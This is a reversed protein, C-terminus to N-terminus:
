MSLTYDPYSELAKFVNDPEVPDVVAAKKSAQDLLLYAYNDQLCPVPKVIMNKFISRTLSPLM